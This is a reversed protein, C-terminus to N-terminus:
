SAGQQVIKELENKAKESSKLYNQMFDSSRFRLAIPAVAFLDNLDVLKRSDAAAYAKAAEFLTLEARLSDIKMKIIMKVGILAIENPIIVRPILERAVIIEERARETDQNFNSIFRLPNSRYLQVRRYAELRELPDELGQVIVRLGFRDLIQPRIDGEEPNMSGVLIMRSKYTASIAGRKVTYSGYSAADLIADAIENQLMNVEDVFLLNQDSQALIGRKLRMRDHIGIKDEVQGIVDELQSNLPLEVLKITDLKTLPYGEAFKKVCDPCVSDMGGSIVDQETCGYFCISREVNPLLELLSRAATTKGTGRPGILLVGGMAPNIVALLLALKMEKQGVLGLFPFPAAEALGADEKPYSDYISRGSVLNILEKLSSVAPLKNQASGGQEESFDNSSTDPM